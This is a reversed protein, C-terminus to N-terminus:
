KAMTSNSVQPADHIAQKGKRNNTPLQPTASTPCSQKKATWSAEKEKVFREIMDFTEKGHQIGPYDDLGCL